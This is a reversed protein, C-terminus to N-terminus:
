RSGHRCIARCTPKHQQWHLRQHEACCYRAQACGLCTRLNAVTHCGPWNCSERTPFTSCLLVGLRTALGAAGAAAEALRAAAASPDCRERDPLDVSCLADYGDVLARIIPDVPQPVSLHQVAPTLGELARLVFSLLLSASECPNTAARSPVFTLAQLCRGVMHLYPAHQESGCGGDCCWTALASALGVAVSGHVIHAHRQQGQQCQLLLPQALGLMTSAAKSNAPHIRAVHAPLLGAEGSRADAFLFATLLDAQLVKPAHRILVRALRLVADGLRVPVDL